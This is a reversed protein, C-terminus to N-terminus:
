RPPHPDGEDAEIAVEQGHRMRRGGGEQGRWRLAPRPVRVSGVRGLVINSILVILINLSIHYLLIM